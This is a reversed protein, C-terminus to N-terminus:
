DKSDLEKTESKLSTRKDLLQDIDMNTLKPDKLMEDIEKISNYVEPKSKIEEGLEDQLQEIINQIMQRLPEGIQKIYDDPIQGKIMEYNNVIMDFSQFFNQDFGPIKENMTKERFRKFLKILKDLDNIFPNEENMNHGKKM